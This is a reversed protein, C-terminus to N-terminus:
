FEKWEYIMGVEAYLFQYEPGVVTMLIINDTGKYNHYHSSSNKPQEYVIHKGDVASVTNPFNCRQSFKESIELWKSVSNPTKLYEDQM